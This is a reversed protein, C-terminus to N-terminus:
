LTHSSLSINSQKIKSFLHIIKISYILSGEDFENINQITQPDKLILKIFGNEQTWSDIIAHLYLRLLTFQDKYKIKYHTEREILHIHSRKIKYLAIESM